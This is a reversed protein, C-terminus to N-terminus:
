TPLASRQAGIAPAKAGGLPPLGACAASWRQSAQALARPVAASCKVRRGIGRIPPRPYRPGGPPLCSPARPSRAAESAAVVEPVSKTRCNEIKTLRAETRLARGRNSTLREMRGNSDNEDKKRADAVYM